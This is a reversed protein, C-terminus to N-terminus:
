LIRHKLVDFYTQNSSNPSILRSHQTFVVQYGVNHAPKGYNVM